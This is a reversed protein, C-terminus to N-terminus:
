WVWAHAVVEAPTIDRWADFPIERKIFGVDPVEVSRAIAQTVQELQRPSFLKGAHGRQRLGVVVLARTVSDPATRLKEVDHLWGYLNEAPKSLYGPVDGTGGKVEVWIEHGDALVIRLDCEPPRGPDNADRCGAEVHVAHAGTARFWSALATRVQEEQPLRETPQHSAVTIIDAAIAELAASWNINHM